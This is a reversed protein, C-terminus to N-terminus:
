GNKEFERGYEFVKMTYEDLYKLSELVGLDSKEKTIEIIKSIANEMQEPYDLCKKRIEKVTPSQKVTDVDKEIKITKGLIGCAIRYAITWSSNKTLNVDDQNSFYGCEVLISNCKPKRVMAFNQHGPYCVSYGNHNLATEKCTKKMHETIKQKINATTSNGKYTYITFGRTKPSSSYDHHISVSLDPKHKNINNCRATFNEPEYSPIPLSYYVNIGQSKM